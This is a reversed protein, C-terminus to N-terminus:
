KKLVDVRCAEYFSSEVRDTNLKALPKASFCMCLIDVIGVDVPKDRELATALMDAPPTRLETGNAMNDRTTYM